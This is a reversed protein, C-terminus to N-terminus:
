VTMLNEINMCAGSAIEERETIGAKGVPLKLILSGIKSVNLTLFFFDQSQNDQKMPKVGPQDATSSFLVGM